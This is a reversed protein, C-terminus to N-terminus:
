PAPSTLISDRGILCSGSPPTTELSVHAQLPAPHHIMPPHDHCELCVAQPGQLVNSREKVAASQDVQIHRRSRVGVPEDLAGQCPEVIDVLPLSLLTQEPAQQGLHGAQRAGLEGPEHSLVPGGPPDGVAAACGASWERATVAAGVDAQEGLDVPEVARQGSRGGARETRAGVMPELAQGADRVAMEVVQPVRDGILPAASGGGHRRARHLHRDALAAPRCREPAGAIDPDIGDM